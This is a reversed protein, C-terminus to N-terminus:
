RHGTGKDVHHGRSGAQILRCQIYAREMMDIRERTYPQGNDGPIQNKMDQCPDVIVPPVVCPYITLCIFGAVFVVGAMIIFASLSGCEIWEGLKFGNEDQMM